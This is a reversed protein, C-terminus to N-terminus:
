KSVGIKPKMRAETGEIYKLGWQAVANLIPILSGGKKTLRYAERGPPSPAPFKEVLEHEV